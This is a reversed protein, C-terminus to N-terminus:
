ESIMEISSNIAINKRESIAQSIFMEVSKRSEDLYKLRQESAADPKGFREHSSWNKLNHFNIKDILLQLIIERAEDPTFTGKILDITETQRMIKEVVIKIQGFAAAQCVKGVIPLSEYSTFNSLPRLRFM